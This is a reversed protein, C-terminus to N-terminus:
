SNVLSKLILLFDKKFDKSLKADKREQIASKIQSENLINNRFSKKEKSLEPKLGLVASLEVLLTWRLYLNKLDSKTSKDISNHEIKNALTTNNQDFTHPGICSEETTQKIQIRANFDGGTYTPM